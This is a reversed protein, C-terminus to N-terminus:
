DDKTDTLASALLAAPISVIGLGLMLIVFTFIKGGITIPFIDGYGVTTLTAVAWWMCHFVSKFTEPQADNEFFYIGASAIFLIFFTCLIFIILEDKISRFATAFRKIAKSYRFLKFARFLRLLRFIRIFRLDILGKSIYFPLIAILDILGSLSLIFRVKNTAVFIRLVYEITFLIVILVEITKFTSAYIHLSPLSELSFLVLSALILFQFFLDFVKGLLTSQTEIITKLKGM